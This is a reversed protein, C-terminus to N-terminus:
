YDFWYKLWLGLARLFASPAEQHPLHGTDNIIVKSANQQIRVLTDANIEPFLPDFEGRIVLTPINLEGLKEVLGDQSQKEWSLLNRLTSLFGRCQGDSWVRKNVRQYLFERDQQPMADLDHYVNRISNYAADPDKRLRKYLWEGLLPIQMMRYGRDHMPEVQLLAGDVLILGSVMEPFRIAFGQSIIAGLSSGMFVSQSISLADMFDRITEIFFPPTYDRDPKESRGFGPLDLAYVHFNEALPTIVHRWTDAEDGLGHILIIPNQNSEGAEFYFLSLNMNRLFIQKSHDELGPWAQMPSQYNQNTM